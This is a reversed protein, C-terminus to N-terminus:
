SSMSIIYFTIMKTMLGCLFCLASHICWSPMSLQCISIGHAWRTKFPWDIAYFPQEDTWGTQLRVILMIDNLLLMYIKCAWFKWLNKQFNTFFEECYRHITCNYGSLIHRKDIISKFFFRFPGITNFSSLPTYHFVQTSFSVKM